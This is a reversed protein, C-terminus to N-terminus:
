EVTLPFLSVQLTYVKSINGTGFLERIQLRFQHILEKAEEMRSPDVAMTFSSVHRAMPPHNNLSYMAKEFMQRQHKIITEYPEGKHANLHRRETRALRGDQVRLFEMDLLREMAERAQEATIGLRTAVWDPSAENHPLQALSLIGYHYWDSIKASDSPSLEYFVISEAKSELNTELVQSMFRSKKATSFECRDAIRAAIKPSLRRKGSLIQSLSAPSVGLFKAFSRLSYSPNRRRRENLEAEIVATYSESGIPDLTTM